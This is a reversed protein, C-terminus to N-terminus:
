HVNFRFIFMFSSKIAAWLLNVLENSVEVGGSGSSRSNRIVLMMRIRRVDVTKEWLLQPRLNLM